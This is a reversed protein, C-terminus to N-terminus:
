RITVYNLLAVIVDPMRLTLEDNPLGYKLQLQTHDIIIIVHISPPHFCWVCNGIPCVDSLKRRRGIEGWTHVVHASHNAM